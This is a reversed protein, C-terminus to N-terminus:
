AAKFFRPWDVAPNVLPNKESLLDRNEIFLLSQVILDPITNFESYHHGPYRFQYVPEARCDMLTLGAQVKETYPVFLSSQAYRYLEDSFRVQQRITFGRQLLREQISPLAVYGLRQDFPGYSPFTIKDSPGPEVQYTLGAAYRSIERSQLTSTEMEHFLAAGAATGAILVIFLWFRPKNKQARRRKKLVRRPISDSAM